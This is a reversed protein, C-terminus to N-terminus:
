NASSSSGTARSHIRRAASADVPRGRRARRSNVCWATPVAERVRDAVRVDRDVQPENRSRWASSASSAPASRRWPDSPRARPRDPTRPAGFAARHRAQAHLLLRTSRLRRHGVLQARGADLDVRRPIQHVRRRRIRRRQRDQRLMQLPRIGVPDTLSRGPTPPQGHRSTRTAGTPQGRGRRVPPCPRWPRARRQTPPPKPHRRRRRARRAPWPRPARRSGSGATAPASATARAAPERPAQPTRPRDPERRAPRTATSRGRRNVARPQAGRDPPGANSTKNSTTPSSPPSRPRTQRDAKQRRHPPHHSRIQLRLDDDPDREHDDFLLADASTSLAVALKKLVDLTPLAGGGEYRRVQSVHIDALDALAQQTLNRQKRQTALRQAFEMARLVILPTNPPDRM